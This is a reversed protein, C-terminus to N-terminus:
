REEEKSEEEIPQEDVGEEGAEEAADGKEESGEAVELPAVEDLSEHDPEEAETVEETAAEEAPGEPPEEEEEPPWRVAAWACLATGVAAPIFAALAVWYGGRYELYDPYGVLTALESAGIHFFIPGLILFVTAGTVLGLRGWRGMAVVILAIVGVIVGIVMVPMAAGIMGIKIAQGLPITWLTISKPKGTSTFPGHLRDTSGGETDEMTLEVMGVLDFEGWDESVSLEASYTVKQGEKLEDSRDDEWAVKKKSQGDETLWFEFYARDVTLKSVNILDVVEVDIHCPVDLGVVWWPITETRLTVVLKAEKVNQETYLSVENKMEKRTGKLVGIREQYEGTGEVFVVKGDVAVGQDPASGTYEVASQTFDSDLTFNFFGIRTEIDLDAVPVLLGAGAMALSTVLTVAVIPVLWKPPGDDKISRGHGTPLDM